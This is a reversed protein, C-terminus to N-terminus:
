NRWRLVDVFSGTLAFDNVLWTTHLQFRGQPMNDSTRFRSNDPSSPRHHPSSWETRIRLQSPACLNKRKRLDSPNIYPQFKRNESPKLKFFDSQPKCSRDIDFRQLSFNCWVELNPESRIVVRFLVVFVVLIQSDSSAKFLNMSDRHSRFPTRVHRHRRGHHDSLLYFWFLVPVRSRSYQSVAVCIM